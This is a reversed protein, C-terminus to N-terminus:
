NKEEKSGRTRKIVRVMRKRGEVAGKGHGRKLSSAASSSSSSAGM